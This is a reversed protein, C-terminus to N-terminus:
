CPTRFVLTPSCLQAHEGWSKCLNSIMTLDNRSLKTIMSSSRYKKFALQRKNPRDKGPCAYDCRRFYTPGVDIKGKVLTMYCICSSSWIKM